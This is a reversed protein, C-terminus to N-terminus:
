CRKNLLSDKEWQINRAEKKFILKGYICPNLQARNEAATLHFTRYIDTLEMQDLAQNLDIEEKNIIQKSSRDATSTPTSFDEVIKTNDIEGKM